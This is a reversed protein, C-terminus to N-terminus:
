KDTNHEYATIASVDKKFDNLDTKSSKHTELSVMSNEPIMSLLMKIDYEGSGINLHEDEERGYHGDSLHFMAPHLALLSRIFELKDVDHSFAACIAHGFDLCFGMKVNKILKELESRTSGLCQEGNLGALPKNEVLSIRWMDPFHESFTKFQHETEALTGNIGPHFIVYRPHLRERWREVEGVIAFNKERDDRISPNMGGLSHPAHLVYPIDLASWAPLYEKHTGPVTFLEIYEYIGAAFLEKAHPIYTASTSWLKLGINM